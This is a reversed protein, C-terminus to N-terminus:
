ILNVKNFTIVSSVIPGNVVSNEIYRRMACTYERAAARIRENDTARLIGDFDIWQKGGAQAIIPKCDIDDTCNHYATPLPYKLIGTFSIHNHLHARGRYVCQMSESRIAILGNPNNLSVSCRWEPNIANMLKVLKQAVTDMSPPPSPPAVTEEKVELTNARSSMVPTLMGLSSRSLDDYGMRMRKNTSGEAGAGANSYVHEGAGGSISDAGTDDEYFGRKHTRAAEDDSVYLIPHEIPAGTIADFPVYTVLYSLFNARSIMHTIDKAGHPLLPYCPSTPDAKAKCCGAM